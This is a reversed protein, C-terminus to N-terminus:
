FSINLGFSYRKTSPITTDGSDVEPDINTFEPYNPAKYFINRGSLTFTVTDFPLNNKKGDLSYALAVERIRFLTTDFLSLDDANYYNSFVTRNSNLQITNPITQGNADLLPLGTGTDGYVGPLIFSGDRNETDRTVGREVLNEATDSFTNGGQTYELQASLTFGKYSFSNITTLTWDPIPNGILRDPLGIESSILLEGNAPNILFNGQDDRVAYSGQIVGLPQGEIAFGRSNFDDFDIPADLEVVKSDYATFINTLNWRFYDNKIIDIDLDIELGETDVRGINVATISSGSSTALPRDVIQDESIRKFASAELKVRSNFFRAELGLEVEKHLEARLDPNALRTSLRNTRITEGNITIFSNENTSLTPRTRFRSPFGASTAYAGRLKLYNVAKSNFNFASSPIFSLSAGPYFLSRNDVELTSSFDNRGSFTAYLYNDYSFELQGFIGILNERVRSAGATTANFNSPRLFGFVVQDTSFSSNSTGNETKSSAGIQGEFGIKDSLKYNTNLILTQDIEELRDFDLLLFGLPGNVGGKNRFDFEDRVEVDLGIRYTANFHENIKYNTNLTGFTRIVNDNRGTNNITWLPNESSRYYINEGTLPDQFPLNILDLNRPLVRLLDFITSGSQSNRKRTSYSLTASVDLKDSLKATGGVSVNFRQLDNNGIIGGETTYGASLNFSTKEQSSAINVSYTSGIGTKFFDRINDPSAEYPVLIDAFQPTLPNSALPHPVFDLDSFAPGWTGFVGGDFVDDTGQGYTNQYEPLKAVQNTYTTQSINISLKEGGSSGSGSKTEILIVGNRGDSGYLLSANLGKLVNFSKIDNPNLDILSGSFAVNNVIILPSNSGSVSLSSRIRVSPVGGTSGSPISIQVGAIKGQLSRSVDSEAKGAFEKGDLKTIAYGLAKKAKRIGLSTVVVEDLANADEALTITLVSTTALVEQTKFGLFSIVLFDESKANITFNGDFDTQTGTQTGKVVISAGPLPVGANDYVTGKVEIEQVQAFSMLSMLFLIMFSSYYKSKM